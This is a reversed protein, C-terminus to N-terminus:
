RKMVKLLRKQSGQIVEVIYTGGALNQGMSYNGPLGQAKYVVRGQLDMVRIAIREQKDSTIQLTFHQDSPNPFVQAALGLASVEEVLEPARRSAISGCPADGCKGLRTFRHNRLHDAVGEVSIALTKANAPNGPPAHCIYVKGSKGTVRVDTVCITIGCATAVGCQNTVTLTFTYTGPETPAFVASASNDSSLTGNGAWKYTYIEGAGPQAGANLTVSQPGYGLYLNTLIGGTYTNNSPTITISCANRVADEVGQRVRDRARGGGGARGPAARDGANVELQERSLQGIPVNLQLGVSFDSRVRGLADVTELVSARSTANGGSAILNLDWLRQSRAVDLNIRSIEIGLLTGLYNPQNALATALARELSVTVSPAGPRDAAVIRSAPDAALLTLLAAAGGREREASRAAVARPRRREGRIAGAGGARPPRAAILLRNVEVLDRSRRLAEGAIRVQEQTTLLTRYALIIATVQEIVAGKVRLRSNQEAIRAIRIPATAYDVGGRALLPQIVQFTLQGTGLDPRGRVNTQAAGWGFSLRAGTPTDWTVVPGLTAGTQRTDGVRSRTVAAAIDLRPTFASEAVRLAFRDAIRGLYEARIARNNRLGLYVAEPLSIEAAPHQPAGYSLDRRAGDAAPVAGRAPGQGALPTVRSSSLSFLPPSFPLPGRGLYGGEVREVQGVRGHDLYVVPPERAALRLSGEPPGRGRGPHRRSASPAAMGLAMAATRAAVRAIVAQASGATRRAPGARGGHGLGDAPHNRHGGERLRGPPRQDGKGRWAGQIKRQSEGPREGGPERGPEGAAPDGSGKLETVGGAAGRDSRPPVGHGRTSGSSCGVAASVGAGLPAAVPSLVFEWGSLRAFGWAGAIGVAIGLLGGVLALVVAEALFLARIESRRAGIALRIGIERRREAISIIMINMVGVGGLLLAISGVAGLLLTFLQMQSAMGALLQRASQVGMTADRLRPELVTRIGAAAIEPDAEPHLRVLVTSITPETMLRRANPISVFLSGDADVPMMPSPLSPALIGVVRLGYRGARVV